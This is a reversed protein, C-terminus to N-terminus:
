SSKNSMWEKIDYQYSLAKLNKEIPLWPQIKLLEGGYAALDLPSRKLDISHVIILMNHPHHVKHAYVENATLVIAGLSSTTGKVEVIIEEQNKMAIFDYSHNRSVDRLEFGESELLERAKAMAHQEVLRREETSLGFGQGRPRNTSRPRLINEIASECAVIEPAPCEPARGLDVEDYLKQLLLIFTKLERMFIKDNPVNPCAHWIAAASSKEYALGLKRLSGLNIESLIRQNIKKLDEEIVTRAWTVQQRLESDSRPVYEGNILQTSGHMLSLYFGEGKAHFLIVCYWGDQASPSHMKSALRIWPIETKRGTGDRGEVILDSGGPGFLAKLDPVFKKLFNPGHLRILEGRRQMEKTNRYSWHKQLELIEKFIDRLKM